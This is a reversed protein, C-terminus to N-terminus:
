ENESLVLMGKKYLKVVNLAGFSKIKAVLNETKSKFVDIDVPNEDFYDQLNEM